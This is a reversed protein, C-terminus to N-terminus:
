KTKCARFRKSRPGWLTPSRPPPSTSYSRNRKIRRPSRTRKTKQKTTNPFIIADLCMKHKILMYQNFDSFKTSQINDLIISANRNYSDPLILISGKTSKILLVSDDVSIEEIKEYLVKTIEGDRIRYLYENSIFYIYKPTCQIQKIKNYDSLFHLIHGQFTEETQFEKALIDGWISEGWVYANGNQTIAFSCNSYCHIFRVKENNPFFVRVPENYCDIITNKVQRCNNKGWGFVLGDKSLTLCHQDGASLKEIPISKEKGHVFEIQKPKFWYKEQSELKRGLQGSLSSGWSYVQGFKNKGFICASGKIFEIIDKGNLEPVPTLEEVYTTNGLGLEGISNHGIAHFEGNVTEVFAFDEDFGPTRSSYFWKINAKFHEQCKSYLKLNKVLNSNRNSISKYM